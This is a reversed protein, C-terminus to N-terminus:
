DLTNLWEYKAEAEERTCSQDDMLWLIEYEYEGIREIQTERHKALALEVVKHMENDLEKREEESIFGLTKVRHLDNTMHAMFEALRRKKLKYLKNFVDQGRTEFCENIEELEENVMNLVNNM